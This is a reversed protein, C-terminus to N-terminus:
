RPGGVATLAAAPGATASPGAKALADLIDQQTYWGTFWIPNNPNGAPFVAVVPVQRFGFWDLFQTVEPAEDTWDAQMMVVSNRAVKDRIEPTNLVQAELTKCTACWDATFDLLVTQEGAFEAAAASEAAVLQLSRESLLTNLQRQFRQESRGDMVERIGSFAFRGTTFEDIGPFLVIWAAGAFAAAGAWARLRTNSDAAPSVRGIWWVAAWLAFLLGVTPVIYTPELFTFIYVVTGLLVFGMIQKFTDMWAGPRPLFRILAPFAGILLYPSAMGLGVSAFVAYTNVPPQNVAWALATGMFPGTCPTALITTLVGKAFAGGYGEKEALDIARGHGVFGPIPIEWVGLFSLAMAFVVSAMAVNFGASKFLHGWGLNFVVALSALLLFVAMLGAAYWINLALAQRRDQGSQEVFSLIKLGIVPLVCPMLNLLMGGIFALGIMQVISGSDRQQRVSAQLLEPDFKPGVAQRFLAMTFARWPLEDPRAASTVAAPPVAQVAETTPQRGTEAAVDASRSGSAAAQDNLDEKPVAMGPGVTAVFAFSQPPLCSSADCPQAKVTGEIKLTAPDVGSALVLPAHWIVTGYHSEVELNNFAPEPKVEPQPSPRFDGILQYANSPPLSIKTAVPGGSPQTLSYIHWGPKINAKIFLRGPQSGDSPTFQAELTVIPERSARGGIGGFGDLLGQGFADSLLGKWGILAALVALWIFRMQM